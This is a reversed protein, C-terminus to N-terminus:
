TTAQDAHFVDAFNGKSLAVYLIPPYSRFTAQGMRQLRSARSLLYLVLKMLTKSKPFANSDSRSPRQNLFSLSVIQQRLSDLPQNYVLYADRVTHNGFSSSLIVLSAIGYKQSMPSSGSEWPSAVLLSTRATTM